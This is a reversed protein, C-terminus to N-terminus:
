DFTRDYSDGARADESGGSNADRASQVWAMAAPSSALDQIARVAVPAVQRIAPLAKGVFRSVLQFARAFEEAEAEAAGGANSPVDTSLQM